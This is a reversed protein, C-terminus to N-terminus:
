LRYYADLNDDRKLPREGGAAARVVSWSLADNKVACLVRQFDYYIMIYLQM